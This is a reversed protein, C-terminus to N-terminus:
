VLIRKALDRDVAVRSDMIGLILNGNMRCVVEVEAGVTFGLTGLHKRVTDDGAVCKIKCRTGVDMFSIPM